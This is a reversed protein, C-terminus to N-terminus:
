KQAAFGAARHPSTLLVVREETVVAELGLPALLLRLTPGLALDRVHFTIRREPDVFERVDADLLLNLSSLDRILALADELSTNELHLEFKMRDLKWRIEEIEPAKFPHEEPFGPGVGNSLVSWAEADPIRLLGRDPIRPDEDNNTLQKLEEIRPAGNFTGHCRKAAHEWIEQAPRYNPDIRLIQECLDMCRRFREQDFAVFALELLHAVRRVVKLEVQRDVKPILLLNDIKPTPM